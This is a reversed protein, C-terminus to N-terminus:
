LLVRGTQTDWITDGMGQRESISKFAGQVRVPREASPTNLLCARDCSVQGEKVLGREEM